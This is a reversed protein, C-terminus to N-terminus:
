ENKWVEEVTSGSWFILHSAVMYFEGKLMYLSGRSREYVRGKFHEYVLQQQGVIYSSKRHCKPRSTVHKSEEKVHVPVQQHGVHVRDLSQEVQGRQAM